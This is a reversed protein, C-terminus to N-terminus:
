KELAETIEAFTHAIEIIPIAIGLQRAIQTASFIGRVIEGGGVTDREVALAHQRGSNKLTEIISGVEARLVADIDLVDILARPVMLDSVTLDGFKAGRREQLLKVPKEGMTDRVTILGEIVGNAGVVLLLRVRRAIMKQSAQAITEGAGVTAASVQRLDTMVDIAPSNVKVPKPAYSDAPLCIVGAKM